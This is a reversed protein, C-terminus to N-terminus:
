MRTHCVMVDKRKLASLADGHLRLIHRWSYNMEVAIREFSYGDIYRYRLVSRLTTNEVAEIAANIKERRLILEDIKNNIKTELEDMKDIIKEFKAAGKNPNGGGGLSSGISEALARLRIKESVLANIEKNLNEYERLYEKVTM